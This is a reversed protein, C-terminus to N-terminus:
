FQLLENIQGPVDIGLVGVPDWGKSRLNTPHQVRALVWEPLKGLAYEKQDAPIRFRYSPDGANYITIVVLAV